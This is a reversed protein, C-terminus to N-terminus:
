VKCIHKSTLEHLEYIKVIEWDKRLFQSLKETAQQKSEALILYEDFLNGAFAHYFHKFFNKPKVLGKFVKM